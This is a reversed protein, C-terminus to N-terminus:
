SAPVELEDKMYLKCWCDHLPAEGGGIFIHALQTLSCEAAPPSSTAPSKTDTLGHVLMVRSGACTGGDTAVHRVHARMPSEEM